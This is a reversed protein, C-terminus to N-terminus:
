HKACRKNRTASIAAENVVNALDRSDSHGSGCDEHSGRVDRGKIAVSQVQSHEM